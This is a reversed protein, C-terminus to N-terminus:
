RVPTWTVVKDGRVFRVLSIASALNTLLFYHPQVLLRSRGLLPLPAFGLMGIAWGALQMVLLWQHSGLLALAVNSLLATLLFIPSLYRLVKHSWLQWAFAGFRLPNLFRRQAALAALSRLTVRIRMSLEADTRELTEEMCTADPELVTRLNQERMVMAIVFDSILEPPIPRYASRRVAYLCGSVGILSGLSSEAMRLATEYGWYSVGGRGVGQEERSVYTLRGAVCGIRADNFNRVMARLAHRSVTTTADTFVLLEGSAEAAAANQCATKGRRGPVRLLRVNAAACASVIADTGDSSADSAVIIDVRDTPYDLELLNAIKEGIHKEENYATIIWSVTPLREGRDIRRGACRALAIALVPYGAYIYALVALSGWLLIELM